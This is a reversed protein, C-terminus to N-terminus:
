AALTGSDKGVWEKPSLIDRGEFEEATPRQSLRRIELRNRSERGRKKM